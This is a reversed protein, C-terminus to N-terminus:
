SLGARPLACLKLVCPCSVVCDTLEIKRYKILSGYIVVDIPLIFLRDTMGIIEKMYRSIKEEAKTKM